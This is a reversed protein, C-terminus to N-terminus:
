RYGKILYNDVSLSRTSIVGPIYNAEVVLIHTETIRTIVAVHGWRSERTLVLGGVYPKDVSPKLDGANGWKEGSRGLYAKAFEICSSAIKPTQRPTLPINTSQVFFSSQTDMTKNTYEAGYAPLM